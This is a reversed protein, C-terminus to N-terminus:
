PKRRRKTKQICRKHAWGEVVQTRPGVQGCHVCLKPRHGWPRRTVREPSLM